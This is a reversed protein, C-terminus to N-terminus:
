APRLSMRAYEVRDGELLSVSEVGAELLERWTEGLWSEADAQSTFAESPVAEVTVPDGNADEYRWYWAM